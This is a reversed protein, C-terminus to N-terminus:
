GARLPRRGPGGASRRASHQLRRTVEDGYHFEMQQGLIAPYIAQRGDAGFPRAASRRVSATRPPDCEWSGTAGARCAELGSPPSAAPSFLSSQPGLARRRNTPHWPCGRAAVRCGVSDVQPVRQHCAESPRSGVILPGDPPCGPLDARSSSVGASPVDAQDLPGECFIVCIATPLM